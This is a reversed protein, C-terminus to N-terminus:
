FDGWANDYKILINTPITYSALLILYDDGGLDSFENMLDADPVFNFDHALLWPLYDPDCYTDPM